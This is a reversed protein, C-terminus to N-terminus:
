EARLAEVPNVAAARRAPLYSALLAAIGLVGAVAALTSVDWSRVGFLLGRILTAAGVSCLLGILVGAASLWLAEKLVLGYVARPQAGLAMRVGIERTRQSVSYAVVGYLGVVSLLLALGAFGGVLWAESRHMYASQSDHIKEGMTAGGFTVIGPDIQHIAATLAPLITQEAQSTRVVLGFGSSPSQNFPLYLVPPIPEDLSGERVDEVIGVIELLVPPESFYSLQKGVADENPFYQRALARNIIAVRPKTGDEGETFFRGRLLRAGLTTFYDTSVDREPADYHEGHWPRGAVWFWCTNGNGDLPLGENAIGASRVGPLNRIGSMLERELAIALPHKEYKADTTAVQLTVLHEPQLGLDVRLLLYLSKGLLGACALLVMTTALEVVVLKSGLRRWANGASGRSGETLGERMTSLSLHFAPTVSFLMAALLGIIGAFGLVRGHLGLGQLFPMRVMMNAPVLATLLQMVWSACALGIISGSIVLVVGETVFQSVMRGRSAGLSSRVAMEKRRNEARVLLLSAVNVSAILLLLGAGGLLALLIPRINGVIVESLPTLAAGRDHNSDPYQKELQQAISTVNALAVQETVGDALRAVGDLNHCSRRKECVGTGNVVGWFEPTGAPAFHFERPLVGIIVVPDGDLTIAKGLVDRRGGYRTQWAGYSLVVTRQAGPLDEGPYFDRGLMPTVGLTRFFGDSVRAGRTPEIGTATSLLFGNRQYVDLSRFVTNLKKWDRYDLYSLNNRTEGLSAEFVGVLRGPNQYPLPKLLAADVFAFIAVSACMGLALTVIATLSFGPNKRLQRIAYRTDRLLNDLVNWGRMDRCEEKRQQFNEIDAGEETERELHYRLEEELEQEVTRRLFLSRLRLRIIHILRM